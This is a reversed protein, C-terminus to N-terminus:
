CRCSSFVVHDVRQCDFLKLVTMKGPVLVKWLVVDLFRVDKRFRPKSVRTETRFRVNHARRFSHHKAVIVRVAIGRYYRELLVVHVTRVHLSVWGSIILCKIRKFVDVTLSALSDKDDAVVRGVPGVHALEQFSEVASIRSMAGTGMDHVTICIHAEARKVEFVTFLHAVAIRRRMLRHPQKTQTGVLNWHRYSLPVLHEMIRVLHFM